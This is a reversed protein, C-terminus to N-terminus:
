TTSDIYTLTFNGYDNKVKFCQFAIFAISLYIFIINRNKFNNVLNQFYFILIIIGFFKTSPKILMTFLLISIAISLNLFNDNKYYKDFFWFSMLIFFIFINETLLNFNIFTIGLLSYFILTFLFAKNNSLLNKLLSFLLLGSALWCFVNLYFSFKYVSADNGGFLYPIGTLLAMAMPRFYHSKFNHYLFSASERYNDSDSYFINQSDIQFLNCLFVIWVIGIVILVVQYKYKLFINKM